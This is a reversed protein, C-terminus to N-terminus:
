DTTEGSIQAQVGARELMAQATKAKRLARECQEILLQIDNADLAISLEHEGDSSDYHLRLTHSVVAAEIADADETFLPRIDSLIRARQLLNVYDYTLDVATAALRIARSNLLRRFLPEANSWTESDVIEAGLESRVAEDLADAVINISANAKRTIGYLALLHQVVTEAQAGELIGSAAAVLQKPHLPCVEIGEFAEALKSLRQSGIDAIQGISSLQERGPRLKVAM